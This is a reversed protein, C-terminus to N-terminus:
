KFEFGLNFIILKFYKNADINLQVLTFKGFRAELNIKDGQKANSNFHNLKNFRAFFGKIKNYVTYLRKV